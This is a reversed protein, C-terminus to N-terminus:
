VGHFDARVLAELAHLAKEADKGVVRVVIEHGKEAGLTMIGLVSKGNVENDASDGRSLFVDSAFRQAIEVFKTSARAHLGHQNTVLLRKVIEM